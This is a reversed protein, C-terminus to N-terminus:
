SYQTSDRQTYKRISSKFLEILWFPHILKLKTRLRILNKDMDSVYQPKNDHLNYSCFLNGIRQSGQQVIDLARCWDNYYRIKFFYYIITTQFFRFVLKIIKPFRHSSFVIRSFPQNQWKINRVCIDSAPVVATAKSNVRCM